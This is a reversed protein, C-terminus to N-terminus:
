ADADRRMCPTAVWYPEEPSRSWLPGSFCKQFQEGDGECLGISLLYPVTKPQNWGTYYFRYTGDWPVVCFPMSGSDDHMGPLGLDIVPTDCVSKVKVPNRFDLEVAATRSHNQENRSAFFVRFQESGEQVLPTPIQAHSRMWALKGDPMYVRGLKRWRM